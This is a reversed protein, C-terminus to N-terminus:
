KPHWVSQVSALVNGSDVEILRAVKIDKLRKKKKSSHRSYDIMLIHTSGLMEGLKNRTERSVIGAMSLKQEEVLQEIAQRDLVSFSTVGEYRRLLLQEHRAVISSAVMKRWQELKSQETITLDSIEGTLIALRIPNGKSLIVDMKSLIQFFDYSTRRIYRFGLQVDYNLKKEEREVTISVIDGPKNSRVTKRLNSSTELPMQNAAKVIDGKRIGAKEAPSKDMGHPKVFDVVELTLPTTRIGLVPVKVKQSLSKKQAFIGASPILLVHVLLISLWLRHYARM